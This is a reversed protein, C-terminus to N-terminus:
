RESPAIVTLCGQAMLHPACPWTSRCLRCYAVSLLPDPRHARIVRAAERWTLPDSTGVPPEVPIMPQARLFEAPPFDSFRTDCLSM